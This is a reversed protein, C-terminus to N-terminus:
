RVRPVSFSLFVFRVWLFVISWPVISYYGEESSVPTPLTTCRIKLIQIPFSLSPFPLLILQMWRYALSDWALISYSELLAFWSNCLFLDCLFLCGEVSMAVESFTAKLFPESFWIGPFRMVASNISRWATKLGFKIVWWFPRHVQLGAAGYLEGTAWRSVFILAQDAVFPKVFVKLEELLWQISCFIKGRRRFSCTFRSNLDAREPM